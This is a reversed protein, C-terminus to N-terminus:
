EKDDSGDDELDEELDEDWVPTGLVPGKSTHIGETPKSVAKKVPKKTVTKKAPKEVSKKASKKPMKKVPKKIAKKIAPKKSQPSKIVRKIAPATGSRLDWAYFTDGTKAGATNSCLFVPKMGSKEIVAVVTLYNKNAERAAKWEKSHSLPGGPTEIVPYVKMGKKIESVRM